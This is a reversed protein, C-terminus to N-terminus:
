DDFESSLWETFTIEQQDEITNNVREVLGLFQEIDNINCTTALLTGCAAIGLITSRITRATM